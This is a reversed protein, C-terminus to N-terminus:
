YCVASMVKVGVIDLLMTDLIGLEGEILVM